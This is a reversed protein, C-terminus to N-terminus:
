KVLRLRWSGVERAGAGEGFLRRWEAPADAPLVFVGGGGIQYGEPFRADPVPALVGTMHLDLPAAFDEFQGRDLISFIADITNGAGIDNQRIKGADDTPTGYRIHRDDETGVGWDPAIFGVDGYFSTGWVNVDFVAYLGCPQQACADGPTMIELIAKVTVLRDTRITPVPEALRRRADDICLWAEYLIQETLALAVRNGPIEALELDAVFGIATTESAALTAVVDIGLADVLDSVLASKDDGLSLGLQLALAGGHLLMMAEVDSILAAADSLQESTPEDGDLAARLTDFAARQGAVTEALQGKTRNLGAEALFSLQETRAAVYADTAAVLLEAGFVARIMQSAQLKAQARLLVEDISRNLGDLAEATVGPAAAAACIRDQESYLFDLYAADVDQARGPGTGLPLLGLVLVVAVADSIRSM